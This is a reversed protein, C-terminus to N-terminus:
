LRKLRSIWEMAMAMAMDMTISTNIAIGIVMATSTIHNQALRLVM